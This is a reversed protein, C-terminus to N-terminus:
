PQANTTPVSHWATCFCLDWQCSLVRCMGCSWSGKGAANGVHLKCEGNSQVARCCVVAFLQPWTEWHLLLLLGATLLLPLLL